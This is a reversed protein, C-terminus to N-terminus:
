ELFKYFQKKHLAAPYKFGGSEGAGALYAPAGDAIVKFHQLGSGYRMDQSRETGVFRRFDDGRGLNVGKVGPKDAVPPTPVFEPRVIGADEPLVKDQVLNVGGGLAPFHMVPPVLAPM